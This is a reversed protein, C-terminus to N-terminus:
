LLHDMFLASIVKLPYLHHPKRTIYSAKDLYLPLRFHKAYIYALHRGIVKSTM